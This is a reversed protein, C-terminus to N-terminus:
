NKCLQHRPLAMVTLHPPGGFSSKPEFIGWSTRGQVSPCKIDWGIKSRERDSLTLAADPSVDSLMVFM